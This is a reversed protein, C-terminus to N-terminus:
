NEDMWIRAFGRNEKLDPRKMEFGDFALLATL